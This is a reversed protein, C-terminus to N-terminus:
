MGGPRYCLAWARAELSLLSSSYAFCAWGSKTGLVDPSYPYSSSVTLGDAVGCGGGTVVDDEMSCQAVVLASGGPAVEAAAQVAFTNTKSFNCAGAPGMPGQVGPRGDSGQGGRPGQPGPTGDPGPPGQEGQRGCGTLLALVVVMRLM